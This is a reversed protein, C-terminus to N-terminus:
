DFLGCGTPKKKRMKRFHKHLIKAAQTLMGWKTHADAIQM